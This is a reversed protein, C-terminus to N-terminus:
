SGYRSARRTRSPITSRAKQSAASLLVGILPAALATTYGALSALPVLVLAIRLWAYKIVRSVVFLQLIV